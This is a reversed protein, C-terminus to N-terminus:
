KKEAQSRYREKGIRDCSFDVRGCCVDWESSARDMFGNMRKVSADRMAMAPQLAVGLGAGARCGKTTGSVGVGVGTCGGGTSPWVVVGAAGAVMGGCVTATISASPRQM